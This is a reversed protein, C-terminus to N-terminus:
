GAKRAEAAWRVGDQLPDYIIVLAGCRECYAKGYTKTKDRAGAGPKLQPPWVKPKKVEHGGRTECLGPQWQRAERQEPTLDTYAPKQITKLHNYSGVDEAM